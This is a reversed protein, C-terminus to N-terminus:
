KTNSELSSISEADKIKDKKRRQNKYWKVALMLAIGLGMFGAVAWVWNISSKLVVVFVIAVLFVTALENLLRLRISSWSIKDAKYQNLIRQCLLHYAILAVILSLKVHMWPMKLIEPRMVLMAVGCVVTLIMAPWGIIYWLRKEMVKFQDQLIQKAAAEKQEAETHYIFLRIIYFLASFWSVVFVLHLAKVVDYSMM